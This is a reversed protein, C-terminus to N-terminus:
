EYSGGALNARVSPRAVTGHLIAGQRTPHSRAGDYCFRCASPGAGPAIKRRGEASLEMRAVSPAPRPQTACYISFVPWKVLTMPLNDCCFSFNRNWCLLFNRNLVPLIDPHAFLLHQHQARLIPISQLHQVLYPLSM